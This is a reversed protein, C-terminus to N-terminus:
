SSGRGSRVTRVRRVTAICRPMHVWPSTALVVCVRLWPPSSHHDSGPVAERGMVDACLRDAMLVAVVRSFCDFPRERQVAYSVKALDAELWAIQAGSPAFGGSPLPSTDDDTPSDSPADTYDTETDFAVFHVNGYNFSYWM